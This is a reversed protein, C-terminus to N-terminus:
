KGLQKLAARIREDTTEAEVQALVDQAERKSIGLGTLADVADQDVTPVSETDALVGKLELIIKQATKMGVGPIDTLFSLDGAMIKAKVNEVEDAAVIKQGVKPGVGSVAILKWFLELAGMSFFGFLERETERIAEHTYLTVEGSVGSVQHPTMTVKYGVGGVQVIVYGESKYEITGSLTTIM